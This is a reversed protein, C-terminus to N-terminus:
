SPWCKLECSDELVNLWCMNVTICTSRYFLRDIQNGVYFGCRNFISSIELCFILYTKLTNGCLAVYRLVSESLLSEAGVYKLKHSIFFIYLQLNFVIKCTSKSVVPFIHLYSVNQLPNVAYIFLVKYCPTLKSVNVVNNIVKNTWQLWFM